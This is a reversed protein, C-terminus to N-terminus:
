LSKKYKIFKWPERSKEIKEIKSLLKKFQSLLTIDNWDNDMAVFCKYNFNMDYTYDDAMHITIRDAHM